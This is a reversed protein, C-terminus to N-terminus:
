CIWMQTAVCESYIALIKIFHLPIECRSTRTSQIHLLIQSQIIFYRKLALLVAQIKVGLM